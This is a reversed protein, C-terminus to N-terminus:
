GALGDFYGDLAAHASFNVQELAASRRPVEDLQGDVVADEFQVSAEDPGHDLHHLLLERDDLHVCDVLTMPDAILTDPTHSLLSEAQASFYTFQLSGDASRLYVCIAGPM